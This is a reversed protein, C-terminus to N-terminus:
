IQPADPLFGPWFPIVFASYIYVNMVVLGLFIAAGVYPLWTRPFWSRFGLMLLIAAPVIMPFYYRAQTLVFITGFQLVALYGLVCAVAMVLVGTVQWPLIALTEDRDDWIERSPFREEELKIIERQSRLFRLAYMALGIIGFITLWFLLRLFTRDDGMDLQIRRWGFAGWTERWRDWHFGRQSLMEPITPNKGSTYNWWQLTEVAKLATFDGYQVMMFLAWPSIVLGSIAATLAGKPIWQRWRRVGIGFVMAIAILVAVVASTTKALVAFGLLLGIIMCVWLPFRKRLGLTLMWVVASTLAIALIDNNLMTAEYSIQPQFAVFAPVMMALFVDRPFLTRVTLYAFVITALGFPITALRLLLIQQDVPQSEVLHYFPTMMAYFLPPHNGTYVWGSPFFEDLFSVTWIPEEMGGYWDETTYTTVDGSVRAYRYLEAPMRDWAFNKGYLAYQQQWEQLNPIIPVRGEEAYIRLYAYHAVEDHGSFPPFAFATVFGKAVFLGLLLWLFLLPVSRRRLITM